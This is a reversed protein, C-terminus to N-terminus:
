TGLVELVAADAFGPLKMGALLARQLDNWQVLRSHRGQEAPNVLWDLLMVVRLVRRDLPPTQPITIIGAHVRGARRWQQHLRRFDQRDYTLLVRDLDTAYALQTDDPEGSKGAEFV